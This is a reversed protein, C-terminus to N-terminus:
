ETITLTFRNQSGLTGGGVPTGLDVRVQENNENGPSNNRIDISIFQTTNGPGFTLPSTTLVAYDDNLTANSSTVTFPVQITKELQLSSRVTINVQSVTDEDVTVSSNMFSISTTDNDIITCTHTATGLTANQPNALKIIETEDNEDITDPGVVVGITKSMDGPNFTLTGPAGPVTADAASATDNADDAFDVKVVRGSPASLAVAIQTTTATNPENVNSTATVFGISPPNDNDTISHTQMHNAGLVLNTSPGRISLIAVEPDEEDLADDREGIPVMVMTQGDNITIQTGDALMMDAANTPAPTGGAVGVVITSMGEAPKDLRIVLMTPTAESTSTPTPDITIRPLIHDAIRISHVARAEDLTAGHPSSLAIVFTEVSETEDHDDKITVPVEKRYEGIAFKLQAPAIEFDVGPTANNGNLLAYDVTVEADAPRSLVVPIMVTGSQEDAGSTDFEFAVTPPVSSEDEVNVTFTCSALVLVALYRV